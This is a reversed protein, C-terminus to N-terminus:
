RRDDRSVGGRVKIKKLNINNLISLGACFNKKHPAILPDVVSFSFESKVATPSISTYSYVLPFLFQVIFGLQFLLFLPQLVAYSYIGLYSSSPM